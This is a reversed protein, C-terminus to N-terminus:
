VRRRVPPKRDRRKEASRVRVIHQHVACSVCYENKIYLKPVVYEGYVSVLKIDNAAAGDVM